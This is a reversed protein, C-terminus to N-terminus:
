ADPHRRACAGGDGDHISTGDYRLDDPSTLFEFSDLRTGATNVKDRPVREWTGGTLRVYGYDGLFIAEFALSASGSNLQYAITGDGGALSGTARVSVQLSGATVTGTMETETTFTDATVLDLFSAILQEGDVAAASPLASDPPASAAPQCAMLVLVSGVGLLRGVPTCGLALRRRM